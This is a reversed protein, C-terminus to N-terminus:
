SADENITYSYIFNSVTFYNMSRTTGNALDIELNLM